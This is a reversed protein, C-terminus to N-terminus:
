HGLFMNSHIKVDVVVRLLPIFESFSTVQRKTKSKYLLRSDPGVSADTTDARHISQRRTGSLNRQLNATCCSKEICVLNFTKQDSKLM